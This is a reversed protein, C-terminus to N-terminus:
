ERPQDWLRYPDDLRKMESLLLAEMERRKAAYLPDNALNRQGATPKAGSLGSVTADHHQEIFEHPNEALNFLQTERVQGDM